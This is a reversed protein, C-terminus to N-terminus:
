RTPRWGGGLAKYVAVLATVADTRSQELRDEAELRSREADLVTIFDTAGGEFRRRALTAAIASERAADALLAARARARDYRVLAADADELALLVSQQYAALARAAGARRQIVQERVRGLNLFAWDLRPGFSFVDNGADTVGARTPALGGASGILTVRPFLDAVAIGVQATASALEREARRVDPRRRLLQDPAGVTVAEPLPPLAMPDALAALLSEPGDGVLVGLRYATTRVQAQLAPIAARTTLLQAGARARDLETGRGGRLRVETLRLTSAQNEANKEAVALRAQAGRLEFYNRVVEATVTLQAFELGAAIAHANATAAENRRRVAGFLDLEWAADFGADYLTLDREARTGPFQYRSALQETRGATATVTPVYDYRTERRLARAQLVGALAIRVDHNATLAREVLSDLLPDGFRTWYDGTPADATVGPAGRAGDFTDPLPTVPTRYNPGVACGSLLAAVVAMAIRRPEAM